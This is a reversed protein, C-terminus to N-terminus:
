LHCFWIFLWAIRVGQIDALAKDGRRRARDLAQNVLDVCASLSDAPDGPNISKAADRGLYMAYNECFRKLARAIMRKLAQDADTINLSRSAKSFDFKLTFYQGPKM